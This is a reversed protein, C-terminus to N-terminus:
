RAIPLHNSFRKPLALPPFRALYRERDETSWGSVHESLSEEWLRRSPWTKFHRSLTQADLNALKWRSQNWGPTVTLRQSVASAVEQVTIGPLLCRLRAMDSFLMEDRDALLARKFVPTRGKSVKLRMIEDLLTKGEAKYWYEMSKAMWDLVHKPTAVRAQHACLFAEIAFTPNGTEQFRKARGRIHSRAALTNELNVHPQGDVYVIPPPLKKDKKTCAAKRSLPRV